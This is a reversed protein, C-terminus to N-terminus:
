PEFLESPPRHLAAGNGRIMRAYWRASDKPTRTGTPFDVHILGFREKYGEAWEFNDLLSWHFYGRVDVGDDIARELERLYRTTYDIRQPDHVRGDLMVWDVNSLGNETIYIPMKYRDHLFRPGWYLAPPTLFWRIATQAHGDAFPVVEPEGAAGAKVCRGDYINLGYFDMPQRILDMDGPRIPPQNKPGFLTLADDPYTGFFAPDSYWTNNWLDPTRVGLTGARAAAIDAPSDSAPYDTRGVLAWGVSPTTRAHARIAQVARGHARLANHCADIQGDLGLKLGPAIKGDGHGHKIFVQPENLTIWKSVRDSLREVVVRTYEAFWDAIERNLWGGRRELALPLDWHFLTIWPEIGAALLEDVLRDYFGLGSESVRGTGEHLVRSWAISCRYAHLGIQRMLGVDEQYRRCHDAAVNGSHNMFVAGPRRCFEDFINPGREDPASAGEIQYSSTAAGWVFDTPFPM